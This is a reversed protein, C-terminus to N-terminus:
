AAASALSGATALTTGFRLTGTDGGGLAGTGAALVAAVSGAGTLGPAQELSGFFGTRSGSASCVIFAREDSGAALVAAASPMSPAPTLTAYIASPMLGFFAPKM